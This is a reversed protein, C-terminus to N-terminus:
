AIGFQFRHRAIPAQSHGSDLDSEFLLDIATEQQAFNMRRLEDLEKQYMVRVKRPSRFVIRM